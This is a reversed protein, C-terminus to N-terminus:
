VHTKTKVIQSYAIKYNLCGVNDVDIKDTFSFLIHLM